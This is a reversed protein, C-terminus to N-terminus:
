LNKVNERTVFFSDIDVRNKKLHNIKNQVQTAELCNKYHKFELKRNIAFKKNRKSKIKVVTMKLYSYTKIRLEVFKTMIELLSEIFFKTTQYNPESIFYCKEATALKIDRHKRVNTETKGFVANNM